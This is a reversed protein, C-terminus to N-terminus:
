GSRPNAAATSRRRVVKWGMSVATISLAAGGLLLFVVLIDWAPRRAYLWPLDMSHLGHYLWRNWRSYKTYSQVVKGTKPDIYHASKDNLRFYIVPLPQQKYRDVYYPEYANVMRTEVVAAPSVARRVADAIRTTDFMERSDGQMPVIRSRRPTGAALYFADGDFSAFELEKVRLETEVEAIAARPDKAAFKAIDLRGGQLAEELNPRDGGALWAFPEMSLFGSFVWTCAVAGFILGLIVHWRKQGTYPIRKAPSYLWIGAVLGLISTVAGAASLCMVVWSWLGSHRRLAAFYLWHPIAGFYAGLRSKLTTDQVVEGTTRSVYTEEGNPWSYKWFPGFARVASDLTWQDDTVLGQFSAIPGPFGTWATAIRLAMQHPVADLREGDDAFILKVRRGFEFRYIPRGDLVCLRIQTPAASEHLAAFALIPPVHIRGPDLSAARALRDEAEVHPFRCYILVIGSAFWMPFLLCFAVGMTRHIRMIWSRVAIAEPSM